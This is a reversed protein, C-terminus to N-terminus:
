DRVCIFGKNAAKGHKLVNGYHIDVLYGNGQSNGGEQSSTAAWFQRYNGQFTANEGAIYAFGNVYATMLEKQTPLRWGSKGSANLDHCYKLAGAWTLGNHKIHGGWFKKTTKDQWMCDKDLTGCTTTNGNRVTVDQWNSGNCVHDAKNWPNQNPKSGDGLTDNQDAKGSESGHADNGHDFVSITALNRCDTKLAGTKSGVTVGHRLDAPDLNTDNVMTGTVGFLTVGDRINEPKLQDNGSSSHRIGASDFFEFTETSALRTNLNNSNLSHTSLNADPLRYTASPYSGMAFGSIHHGNKIVGPTIQSKKVSVIAETTKCGVQNGDTCEDVAICPKTGTKVEGELNYYEVQACVQDPQLSSIPKDIKHSRGVIEATATSGAEAVTITKLGYIDPMNFRLTQSDPAKVTGVALGNITVESNASFYKGTLTVVQQSQASLPSVKTIQVPPKVLEPTAVVREGEDKEVPKSSQFVEFKGVLKSTFILKNDKHTISAAPVIGRKWVKAVADRVTYVVFFNRHDFFLSLLSTGSVPLDLAITMPKALNADINSSVVTAVGSPTITTDNGIGFEQAIDATDTHFGSKVTLEQGIALSGSPLQVQAVRQNAADTQTLVKTETKLQIGTNPTAKAQSRRTEVTQSHCGVALAAIATMAAITSPAAVAPLATASQQNLSNRKFQTM